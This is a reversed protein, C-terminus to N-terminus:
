KAKESCKLCLKTFPLAKLRKMSIEEGCIECIGYTGNELRSIADDIERIEKLLDNLNISNTELSAADTGIDASHYPYTSAESSIYDNSNLREQYEKLIKQKEQKLKILQQEISKKTKKDM